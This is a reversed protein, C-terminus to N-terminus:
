AERFYFILYEYLVLNSAKPQVARLAHYGIMTAYPLEIITISLLRFIEDLWKASIERYVMEISDLYLLRIGCLQFNQM